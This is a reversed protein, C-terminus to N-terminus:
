RPRASHMSIISSDTLAHIERFDTDRKVPVKIAVMFPRARSNYLTDCNWTMRLLPRLAEGNGTPLVLWIYWDLRTEKSVKSIRPMQKTGNGFRTSAWLPNSALKGTRLSRFSCPSCLAQTKRRVYAVQEILTVDDVACTSCTKASQPALM